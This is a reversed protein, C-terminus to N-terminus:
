AARVTGLFRAVEASLHESQRSLESASALVESAAAGTEEAAAAVGAINGTVEGTGSAAQSVNRVIEQTAAGQEEVAAAISTAVGSIEEIRATITGIAGAAQGTSAQIAAIQSTIEETARATQGALEKVEAAVVAFGRGAAGARAAEITANLALLNTQAAISSILGVVDGIRATAETLARVQHATQGAEAVAAQALRASGDVQRGIEQVSAGLEEAAAAVTGVNSSAEEAAAAVATSQAATQTATATMAQATAQLETASASVRGVIGGVAQEFADAMRRMGARRQEEASARALVTEEELTRARILGDKFVQVAAAMAGIEDRREAGPIATAVDGAALRRMAHDLKRLPAVARRLSLWLIAAGALAMALGLGVSQGRIRDLLAYYESKRVGAYFIGIVGGRADRIPEYITLYPIGLIVAEGRYTEGRGLVAEHVPGRALRTGIARSGDPNLVTTAIRTDGAFVTATGGMVDRVRDVAPEAAGVVHSGITLRGDVLAFDASAGEDALTRKLLRVNGELADTAHRLMEAEVDRLMLGVVGAVALMLVITGIISSRM